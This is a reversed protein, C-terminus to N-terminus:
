NQPMKTIPNVKKNNGQQVKSAKIPPKQQIKVNPNKHPPVPIIPKVGGGNGSSQKTKSPQNSRFLKKKSKFLSGFGKGTKKRYYIYVGIGIGVLLLFLIFLIILVKHKDWFSRKHIEVHLVNQEFYSVKEFKVNNEKKSVMNGRNDFLIYSDPMGIANIDDWVQFIYGVPNSCDGEMNIDASRGATIPQPIKELDNTPVPKNSCVLNVKINNKLKSEAHIKM